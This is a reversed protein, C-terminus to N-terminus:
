RPNRPANNPQITPTGNGRELNNNITKGPGKIKISDNKTPCAGQTDGHALHAPWASVPISITQPNQNNGPPIHCITIKKEGGAGTGSPPVSSSDTAVRYIVMESKVDTGAANTAKVKLINNGPILNGSFSGLQGALNFSTIPTGNLKIEIQQKTANLVTFKFNYQTSTVLPSSVPKTITVVPPKVVEIPNYIVTATKEENGDTNFIAIQLTNNGPSLTTPYTLVSGDYIFNSIINGNYKVILGSSNPVGIISAKFTFNANKSNATPIAPNVFTISPLRKIDTPKSYTIRIQKFDSGFQNTGKVLVINEGVVLNSQFSIEKTNIDYSYNFLSNGNFLVQIDSKSNVNLVSLKFSYVSNETANDTSAPNILSVQPPAANAVVRFNINRKKTDTGDNNSAKIDFQNSGQALLAPYSLNFGDYIYNTVINGNFKVKLGTTNAVNTVTAKFTYNPDTTIIGDSSPTHINILPPSKISVAPSYNVTLQKLDSGVANTGKVSLSNTGSALTTQFILEKSVPDYTFNSQVKGNFSVEIDSKSNVNLVGLKFTYLANSTNNISNAPNILNVVPPLPVEKKYNIHTVKTDEGLTNNATISINNTGENLAATFTVQKSVANFTFPTSVGNFYVSVNKQESVNLVQATITYNKQSVTTGAQVPNIFSVLPPNGGPRIQEFVISTQKTDTGASNSAIIQVSNTGKILMANYELLRTQANYTFDTHATGNFKFQIMNAAAVNQIQASIKYQQNRVVFANSPPTVYTIVPKEGRPPLQSTNSPPTQSVISNTPVSTSNTPVTNTVPGNPATTSKNKKKGRLTFLFNIGTYHYYDNSGGIKDNNLSLKGDLLDANTGQPL